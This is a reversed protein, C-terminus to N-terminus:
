KQFVKTKLVIVDKLPRDNKDTEVLSMKEVIDFGEVVEGFITVSGDLHPTGGITKYVERQEAPITVAPLKALTDELLVSAEIHLDEEKDPSAYEPFKEKLDKRIKYYLWNRRIQNIRTEMSDLGKDDWVKGQVFCFQTGASVREPNVDDGEKADILAGRKNFHNPLIEAPVSYGGGDNGYLVGPEHAKSSPDGGQVVFEKIIRHFLVGEYFNESCLKIFNDRHLPTDDYLMVTVDGMTTSIEVYVPKNKDLSEKGCSVLMGLCLLCLFLTRAIKM